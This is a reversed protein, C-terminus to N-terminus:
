VVTDTLEPSMGPTEQQASHRAWLFIRRALAPLVILLYTASTAWLIGSVGFHKALLFKLGFALLTAVSFVGIQYRVVSLGNLLLAPVRSLALVVIWASMAWLLPQGIGLNTRLWLRLLREGFVLMFLSGASAIGFILATGRLLTKRIWPHDSKHAAETFAPWFPQSIVVFIGVATMCIRLAITMQASAEPGLLELALVNDLMFSLSGVLGLTFYLMGHGAVEKIASWPVILTDPRLEPHRALLHVLGGINSLVLGAYVIAVFIRVDKTLVAAAILGGLTLLTQVLEWFGSVYGKQLAMWVNNASSLPINIALGIVAILFPGAKGQFGTRTSVIFAGLVVVTALASGLALAGSIHRRADEVNERANSRAVLTVLASGTGVDLLGSLWALSAAAGWVGFQAPGLARLLLPMVVLTGLAQVSRQFVGASASLVIRRNRKM